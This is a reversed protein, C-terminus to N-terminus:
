KCKIVCEWGAQSYTELYARLVSGIASLPVSGTQKVTHEWTLELSVRLFVGSCGKFYMGLRVQRYTRM